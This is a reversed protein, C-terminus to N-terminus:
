ISTRTVQEQIINSRIFKNEGSTVYFRVSLYVFVFCHTDWFSLTLTLSIYRKM